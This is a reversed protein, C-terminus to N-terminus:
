ETAIIDKLRTLLMAKTDLLSYKIGRKDLEATIEAKKLSDVDLEKSPGVVPAPEIPADPKIIADKEPEPKIVNNNEDVEQGDSLRFRRGDQVAIAGGPVELGFDRSKNLTGM